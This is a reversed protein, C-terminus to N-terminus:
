QQLRVGFTVQNRTFSQGAANSDRDDFNYLLSLHVTRNLRYDVGASARYGQDERTSGVYDGNYYSFDANLLIEPTLEHDVGIGGIAYFIGGVGPMTADVVQRSGTLRVTTMRTAEWELDVGFSVGDVDEFQEYDQDLYGIYAEGSILNTLESSIGVAVNYGQSDQTLGNLSLNAFSRDNYVGRAFASYGPSFEFGAQATGQWVDRDRYTQSDEYELQQFQGGASLSLQDVRHNIALAAQLQDYNIPPVNVAENPDPSDIGGRQETLAQYGLLATINTSERVDLQGSGGVGWNTRDQATYDAYLAQSVFAGLSLKNRSWNSEYALSPDIIFRADDEANNEQALINDDYAASIGLAPYATFGGFKTGLADSEPAVRDTVGYPLKLDQASSAAPLLVVLM